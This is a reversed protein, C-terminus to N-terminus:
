RITVWLATVILRICRKNPTVMTSCPTLRRTETSRPPAVVKSAATQCRTVKGNDRAPTTQNAAIVRRLQQGRKLLLQRELRSRHGHHAKSRM